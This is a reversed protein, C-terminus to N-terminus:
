KSKIRPERELSMKYRDDESLTNAKAADLLNTTYSSLNGASKLMTQAELFQNLENGNMQHKSGNIKGSKHSPNGDTIFTLATLMIGTYPIFPQGQDKCKQVAAKMNAFNRESSLLESAEDHM